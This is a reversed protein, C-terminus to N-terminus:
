KSKKVINIIKDVYYNTENDIFCVNSEKYFGRELSLHEFLLENPIDIFCKRSDFQDYVEPHKLKMNERINEYYEYIKSIPAFYFETSEKVNIFAIWVTANFKYQFRFLRKIEKANLYFRKESSKSTDRHKVDIYYIGHITHIIFDPRRIENEKFENSYKEKSQDIFYYPIKKNDLYESFLCEAKEANEFNREQDDSTM